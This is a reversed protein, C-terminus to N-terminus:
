EYIRLISSIIFYGFLVQKASLEEDHGDGIVVFTPKRGFRAALREMCNEKGVKAASYINEIKLCFTTKIM